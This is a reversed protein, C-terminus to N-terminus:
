GVPVTGSECSLGRVLVKLINRLSSEDEMILIKRRPTSANM